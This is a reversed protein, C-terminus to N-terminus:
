EAKPELPANWVTRIGEARAIPLGAWGIRADRSEFIMLPVSDPLITALARRVDGLLYASRLLFTGALPETFRGLTNLTQGIAQRQSDDLGAGCVIVLNSAEAKRAARTEMWAEIRPRLMPHDLAPVFPEGVGCSIKALPGLRGCEALSQLQGLTFPGHAKGQGMVHWVAPDLDALDLAEPAPAPKKPIVRDIRPRRRLM